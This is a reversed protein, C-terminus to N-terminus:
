SVTGTSNVTREVDENLETIKNYTADQYQGSTSVEAYTKIEDVISDCIAAAFANFNPDNEDFGQSEFADKMKQKFAAKLRSADLAM